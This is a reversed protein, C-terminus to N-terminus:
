PVPLQKNWMYITIANEASIDRNCYFANYMNQTGGPHLSSVYGCSSGFRNNLGMLDDKLSKLLDKGVSEQQPDALVRTLRDTLNSAAEEGIESWLNSELENCTMEVNGVMIDRHLPEYADFNSDCASFVKGICKHYLEYKDPSTELCDYMLEKKVKERMQASEEEQRKKDGGEFMEKMSMDVPSVNKFGDLMQNTTAEKATASVLPMVAFAVVCFFKLINKM